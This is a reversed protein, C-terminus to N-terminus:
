WTVETANEVVYGSEVFQTVVHVDQNSVSLYEALASALGLQLTKIDSAAWLSPLYLTAMAKYQQGFQAQAMIFNITMHKESVGTAQSWLDVPDNQGISLEGYLICHAIPM